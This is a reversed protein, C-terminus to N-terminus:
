VAHLTHEFHRDKAEVRSELCSSKVGANKAFSTM